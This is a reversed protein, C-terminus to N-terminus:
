SDTLLSCHLLFLSHTHTHDSRGQNRTVVCVATFRSATLSHTLNLAGSSVCYTVEPVIKVPWIVLGVTDFCQLFRYNTTLILSSDWWYWEVMNCYYLELCCGRHVAYPDWHSLGLRNSRYSSSVFSHQQNDCLGASVMKVYNTWLNGIHIAETQEIVCVLRLVTLM